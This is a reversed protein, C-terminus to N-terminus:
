LYELTSTGRWLRAIDDADITAIQEISGTITDSNTIIGAPLQATM